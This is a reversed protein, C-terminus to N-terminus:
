EIGIKANAIWTYGTKTGISRGGKSGALFNKKYLTPKQIYDFLGSSKLFAQTFYNKFFADFTREYSGKVQTGGPNNVTVPRSVFVDQGGANFVLANSKKPKITVPIGLEMIRAKDYFPVRSDQAISSSQRFSSKISLGLNSVTYDLNFLRADPSGTQYWEYVHHMASNNGRAMADIYQGLAEIVGKGLNDLFVKKGTQVGDLFGFSYDVINQLQKELVSSNLYVRM